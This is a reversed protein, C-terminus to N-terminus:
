GRIDKRWQDIKASMREVRSPMSGALDNLENPDKQLDYLHYDAKDWEHLKSYHSSLDKGRYRRILKWKGEICWIYQLTDDPNGLTMNHTSHNVGFDTGKRRASEDLLDIGPLGQPVKRRGCPRYHAYSRGCPCSRTFRCPLENPGPFCSPIAPVEKMPRDKAGNLMVVFYNRTQTMWIPVATSWGNDCTFVVLTNEKLGQDDLYGILEGVTDDLWECMAYYKAQDLAQERATSKLSGSPPITLLTHSFPAYWLLFPKKRQAHEM